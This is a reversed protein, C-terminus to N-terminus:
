KAGCLVRIFTDFLQIKGEVLERRSMKRMRNRMIDVERYDGSEYVWERKELVSQVFADPASPDGVFDCVVVLKYDDQVVEYGRSEDKKLTGLGRSSMGLRCGGEMLGKAIKGMPTELVLAKGVFNNGQQNLEVIRHSVRDLNLGPGNPHGLEGYSKGERIRPQWNNAERQLIARPYYRGNRNVCESQMFIGKVYHNKRDGHTEELYQLDQVQEILLKAM